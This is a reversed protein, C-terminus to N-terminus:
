ITNLPRSQSADRLAREHDRENRPPPAADINAHDFEIEPYDARYGVQIGLEQALPEIGDLRTELQSEGLGHFYMRTRVATGQALKPWDDYDWGYHHM